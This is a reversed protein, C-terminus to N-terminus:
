IRADEKEKIYDAIIKELYASRSRNELRAYRMVQSNLAESMRISVSLHKVKEPSKKNM